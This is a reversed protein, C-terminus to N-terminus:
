GARASRWAALAGPEDRLGPPVLFKPRNFFLIGFQIASGGFLGLSAAAMGVDYLASDEPSLAAVVSGGVFLAIAPVWVVYSRVVGRWVPESFPFWLPPDDGKLRSEGRWHRPASWVWVGLTVVAFASGLAAGLM